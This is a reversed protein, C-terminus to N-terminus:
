CHSREKVSLNRKQMEDRILAIFDPHLNLQIARLYTKVLLQDSLYNM